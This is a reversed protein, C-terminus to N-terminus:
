CWEYERLENDLTEIMWDLRKLQPEYVENFDSWERDGLTDQYEALMSRINNLEKYMLKMDVQKM